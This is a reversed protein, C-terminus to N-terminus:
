PVARIANERQAVAMVAGAAVFVMAAAAWRWRRRTRLLSRERAARGGCEPCVLGSVGAMDYWCRPCRRRGRSRDGWVSWALVAFALGAVVWGGWGLAATTWDWAGM